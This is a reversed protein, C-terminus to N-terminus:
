LSRISDGSSTSNQTYTDYAEVLMAPASLSGITLTEQVSDAVKEWFDIKETTIV